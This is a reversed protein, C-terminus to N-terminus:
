KQGPTSPQHYLLAFTPVFNYFLPCNQLLNAGGAEKNPETKGPRQCRLLSKALRPERIREGRRLVVNCIRGTKCYYFHLLAVFIEAPCLRSGRM